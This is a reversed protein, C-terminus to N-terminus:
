SIDTVWSLRPGRPTEVRVEDDVVRGILAKGLPSTPTVVIYSEGDVDLRTGGGAAAIFYTSDPRAPAEDEHSVCVIASLGARADGTFARLEMARTNALDDRLGAVRVSLGRALYTAEIARTDKDSEPKAEPHTAGEQTAKQSSTSRQLEVELFGLLAARLREKLTLTDHM